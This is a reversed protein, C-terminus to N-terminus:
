GAPVVWAEEREVEGEGADEDGFLEQHAQAAKAELRARAPSPSRGPSIAAGGGTLDDAPYRRTEAAIRWLRM